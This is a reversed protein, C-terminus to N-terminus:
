GMTSRLHNVGLVVPEDGIWGIRTLSGYDVALRFIRRPPVGLVTGLAGRVVGGHTVAVVVSGDLAEARIAEVAEGVREVLDDYCEGGPFRVATPDRMWREYLDPRTAAVDDYTMGELEGFDLERLADVVEVRLGHAQAIPVATDVARARPSSVVRTVPEGALCGALSRAVQVGDASLGVDLSGYCRGRADEEPPGHRVLILEV